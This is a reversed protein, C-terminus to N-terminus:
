SRIVWDNSKPWFHNTYDWTSWLYQLEDDFINIQDWVFWGFSRHLPPVFGSGRSPKSDQSIPQSMMWFTLIIIICKQQTSVKTVSNKKFSYLRLISYSLNEMFNDLNLYYLATDLKFKMIQWFLGACFCVVLTNGNWSAYMHTAAVISYNNKFLICNRISTEFHNWNLEFSFLCQWKKWSVIRIKLCLGSKNSPLVKM